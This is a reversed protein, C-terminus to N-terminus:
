QQALKEWATRPQSEKSHEVMRGNIRTRGQEALGSLDVPAEQGDGLPAVAGGAAITEPLGMRGPSVMVSWSDYLAHDKTTNRHSRLGREAVDIAEWDHERMVSHSKSVGVHGANFLTITYSKWM